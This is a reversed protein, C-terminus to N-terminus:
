RSFYPQSLRQQESASLKNDRAKQQLNNLEIALAIITQEPTQLSLGKETKDNGRV